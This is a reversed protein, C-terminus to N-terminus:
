ITCVDQMNAVVVVMQFNKDIGCHSDLVVLLRAFLEGTPNKCAVWFEQSPDVTRFPVLTDAVASSKM